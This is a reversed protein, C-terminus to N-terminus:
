GLRRPREPACGVRKRRMIVARARVAAHSSSCHGRGICRAGSTALPRCKGPAGAAGGSMAVTKIPRAIRRSIMWCRGIKESASFRCGGAMRSGNSSARTCSRPRPVRLGDTADGSVSLVSARWINSSAQPSPALMSVVVSSSATVLCEALSPGISESLSVMQDSSGSSSAMHFVISSHSAWDCSYIMPSFLPVERSCTGERNAKCKGRGRNEREREKRKRTQPKVILAM